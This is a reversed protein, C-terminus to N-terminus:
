VQTNLLYPIFLMVFLALLNSLTLPVLLDSLKGKHKSVLYIAQFIVNALMFLYVFRASTRFVWIMPLVMAMGYLNAWVLARRASGTLAKVHHPFFLLMLTVNTILYPLYFQIQALFAVSLIWRIDM